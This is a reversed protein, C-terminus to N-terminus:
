DTAWEVAEKATRCTWPVPLFFRKRTGDPQLPGDFAEVVSIDDIWDEINQTQNHTRKARCRWLVGTEDEHVKEAGAAQLYCEYGFREIMCRRLEKNPEHTIAEFAISHPEEILRQPVNTGKWFWYREGSPWEVAPGVENHLRDDSISLMPAPVCIVEKPTVWYLFLGAEFADVMSLWIDTLKHRHGPVSRVGSNLHTCADVADWVVSRVSNGAIHVADCLGKGAANCATKEALSGAAIRVASKAADWVETKAATMAARRAPYFKTFLGRRWPRFVPAGAAVRAADEAAERAPDDVADRAANCAADGVDIDAARRIVARGLAGATALAAAKAAKRAVAWAAGRPAMGIWDRMVFRRTDAAEDPHACPYRPIYWTAVRVADWAANWTADRACDRAAVMSSTRGAVRAAVAAITCATAQVAAGTASWTATWAAAWATNRAVTRVAIKAAAEAVAISRTYGTRADAVWVIPRDPLNLVALHVRLATEVALRDLRPQAPNVKSLRDIATGLNM